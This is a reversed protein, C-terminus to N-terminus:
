YKMSIDDHDLEIGNPGFSYVIKKRVDHKYVHGWPDKLTIDQLGAYNTVDKLYPHQAISNELINYKKIAQIYTECDQRAKNIKVKLKENNLYNFYFYICLTLFVISILIDIPIEAKSFYIMNYKNHKM